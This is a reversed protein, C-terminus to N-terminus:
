LYFHSILKEPSSLLVYGALIGAFSCPPPTQGFDVMLSLWWMLNTDWEVAKVMVM